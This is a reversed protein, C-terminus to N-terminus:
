FFRTGLPDWGRSDLSWVERCFSLSLRNAERWVRWAKGYSSPRPWSWVQSLYGWNCCWCSSKFSELEHELAVCPNPLSSLFILSFLFVTIWCRWRGIKSLFFYGLPSIIHRPFVFRPQRDPHTRAQDSFIPHFGLQRCGVGNEQESNSEERSRRKRQRRRCGSPGKIQATLSTSTSVHM